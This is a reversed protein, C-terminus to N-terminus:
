AAEAAAPGTRRSSAFVHHIVFLEHEAGRRHRTERANEVTQLKTSARLLESDEIRLQRRQAGVATSVRNIADGVDGDLVYGLMGGAQVSSAYHGTVFRMMGHVVYETAYSRKRGRRVVNLRKCELCFYVEETPVLPSFVIDMRGQEADASAGLEVMQIDVRFPLDAATRTNRLRRCLEETTPDELADTALAPMTQWTSWVLQLIRPVQSAILDLWQDPVGYSKM